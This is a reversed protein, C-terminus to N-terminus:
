GVWSIVSALLAAVGLAGVGLGVSTWPRQRLWASRQAPLEIIRYSLAALVLSAVIMVACWGAAPPHGLRNVVFVWLPAHWLYLSYSMAGIAVLPGIGLVASATFRDEDRGYLIALAAGVTPLIIIWGPVDHQNPLLFAPLIMAAMGAWSLTARVTAREGFWPKAFALVCGLALEGARIFSSFYAANRNEPTAIISFAYAAVVVAILFAVAVRAFRERGSAKWIALFIAPWLLYFQEEISLSWYHGTPTYLHYKEFYPIAAHATRVNAFLFVAARIDAAVSQFVRHTNLAASAVTVTVLVAVSAPVIRRVRRSYFGRLSITNARDREHILSNTIVFGSVVFFIDVGLNGGELWSAGFHYAVVMLAAIARLGQIDRRRATPATTPAALSGQDM